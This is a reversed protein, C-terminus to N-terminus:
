WVSSLWPFTPSRLSVSNRIRLPCASSGIISNISCLRMTISWSMSTMPRALMSATSSSDAACIAPGGCCPLARAASRPHCPVCAPRTHRFSRLSLTFRGRNRFLPRPAFLSIGLGPLLVAGGAFAHQFDQQIAHGRAAVAFDNGFHGVRHAHRARCDAAFGDFSGFGCQLLQQLPAEILDLQQDNVDVAHVEALLAHQGRHTDIYLAAFM